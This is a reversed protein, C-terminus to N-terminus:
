GAERKLTDAEFGVRWGNWCDYRARLYGCHSKMLLRVAHRESDSGVKERAKPPMWAKITMQLPVVAESDAM